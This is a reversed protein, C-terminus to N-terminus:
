MAADHVIRWASGARQVVILTHGSSSPVGALLAAALARM